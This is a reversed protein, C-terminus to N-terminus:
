KHSRGTTLEMQVRAAADPNNEWFTSLSQLILTRMDGNSHELTQVKGQLEGIEQINKKQQAEIVEFRNKWDNEKDLLLKRLAENSQNLADSVGDTGKARVYIVFGYAGVATITTAIITIVAELWTPIDM